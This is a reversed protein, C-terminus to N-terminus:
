IGLRKKVEDRPIEPGPYKEWFRLDTFESFKRVFDPSSTIPGVYAATNDSRKIELPNGVAIQRSKIGFITAMDDYLNEGRLKILNRRLNHNGPDKGEYLVILEERTPDENRETKNQIVGLTNGVETTIKQLDMGRDEKGNEPAPPQEGGPEPIGFQKRLAALREGATKRRAELRQEQGPDRHPEVLQRRETGKRSDEQATGTTDSKEEPKETNDASKLVGFSM